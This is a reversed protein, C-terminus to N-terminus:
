RPTGVGPEYLSRIRQARFVYGPSGYVQWVVKGTADYEEVRGGNGYSVLVHGDPLEQTSGGLGAIVTDVPAFSAAVSSVKALEDVAFRLARSGAPDGLNDLIVVDDYGSVRLGHQRAFRHTTSGGFAFDNRRGGLRWVVAGTRGDIKTVESLNRFSVYVNGDGDLDFANAHTWNISGGSRDVVDISGYDIELHDFTSWEFLANWDSVHQVVNGTVSAMEPGGTARLDVTRTEDCLIWYSGDPLALLDHVRTTLGRTCGLSRTARGLVDVETWSAIEGTEPTPRAAYRGNPQPQFNLGPGKPFKRYWVVRGTNDIVLGYLGAAFVVYGPSPDDGGATYTPLDGPLAGTHFAGVNAMTTGCHNSAVVQISYTSSPMLGLVPLSVTVENTAVTTVPTVSDLGPKLGFRVAVGDAGRVRASAVASLVNLENAAVAADLVEPVSCPAPQVVSDLCACISALAAVAANRVGSRAM